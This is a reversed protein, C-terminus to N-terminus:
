QYCSAYDVCQYLPLTAGNSECVESACHAGSGCVSGNTQPPQCSFPAATGLESTCFLPRACENGANCTTGQTKPAKCKLDTGGCWLQGQCVYPMSCDENLGPYPKCAGTVTTDPWDCWLPGDCRGDCPAGESFVPACTGRPDTVSLNMGVCRQPKPCQDDQTCGANAPFDASCTGQGGTLPIKCWFQKDCEGSWSCPSNAAGDRCTAVGGGIPNVCYAGEVCRYNDTCDDNVQHPPSCTRPCCQLECVIAGADCDSGEVQCEDQTFCTGGSAVTGSFTANCAPTNTPDGDFYVDPCAKTGVDAVCQAADTGSYTVTGANIADMLRRLSMVISEGGGNGGGGGTTGRATATGSGGGGISPGGADVCEQISSFTGWCRNMTGCIAELFCGSLDEALIDGECPDKPTADPLDVGADFNNADIDGGGADNATLVEGCGVGVMLTAALLTATM